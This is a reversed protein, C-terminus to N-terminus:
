PYSCTQAMRLDDPLKQCGPGPGIRGRHHVVFGDRGQLDCSSLAMGLHHADQLCSGFSSDRLRAWLKRAKAQIALCNREEPLGHGAASNGLPPSHRAKPDAELHSLTSRRWKSTNCPATPYCPLRAVAKADSTTAHPRQQLMRSCRLDVDSRVHKCGTQNLLLEAFGPWGPSAKPSM